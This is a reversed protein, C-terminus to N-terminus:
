PLRIITGYDRRTVESNISFERAGEGTGTVSFTIHIPTTASAGSISFEIRPVEGIKGTLTQVNTQAPDTTTTSLSWGTLSEGSEAYLAIKWTGGQPAYISFFGTLPTAKAALTADYRKGGSAVGSIWTLASATAVQAGGYAVSGPKSDWDIRKVNITIENEELLLVYSYRNGALWETEAPVPVEKTSNDSLTVVFKAGTLDDQTQPWVLGGVMQQADKALEVSTWNSIFPTATESEVVTIVPETEAAKYNIVASKNNKIGEIAVNKVTVANVMGNKVTVNVASFLHHLPLALTYDEYRNPEGKTQTLKVVDSYLFDFQPDGTTMVKAVTLKGDAALAPATGFYTEATTEGDNNLWSSFVHEGARWYYTKQTDWHGDAYKLVDNIYPTGPNKPDEFQDVIKLEAGTLAILADNNEIIAKTQLGASFRIPYQSAIDTDNNKSCSVLAAMAAAAVYIYIKKM